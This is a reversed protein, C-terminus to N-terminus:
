NFQQSLVFDGEINIMFVCLITLYICVFDCLELLGLLAKETIVQNLLSSEISRYNDLWHEISRLSVTQMM